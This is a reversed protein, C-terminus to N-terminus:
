IKLKLFPFNYGWSQGERYRAIAFAAQEWDEFGFSLSVSRSRHSRDISLFGFRLHVRFRNPLTSFSLLSILFLFIFNQNNQPFFILFSLCISFGHGWWKIKRVKLSFYISFKQCFLCSLFGMNIKIM